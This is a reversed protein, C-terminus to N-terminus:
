GARKAGARRGRGVLVSDDGECGLQRAHSHGGPDGGDRKRKDIHKQSESPEYDPGRVVKM